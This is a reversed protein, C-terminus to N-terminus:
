LGFVRGFNGSYFRALAPEPENDRARFKFGALLGIMEDPSLEATHMDGKSKRDIADRLVALSEKVRDALLLKENFKYFKIEELTLSDDAELMELGLGDRM